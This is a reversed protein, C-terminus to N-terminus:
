HAVLLSVVFMVGFTLLYQGDAVSLSFRPPVFFFNFCLVGVFSSLAAPGKGWFAASVAVALVYLLIVNALDIAAHWPLALLTTLACLGLAAAYGGAKWRRGAVDMHRM